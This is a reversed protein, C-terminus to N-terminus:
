HIQQGQNFFFTILAQSGGILMAALGSVLVTRRGVFSQHYNQSHSGLAWAGSGILLGALSAILAWFGLGDTLSQITTGGPLGSPSPSFWSLSGSGSAATTSTSGPAPASVMLVVLRALHLHLHMRLHPHFHSLARARPLVARALPPFSWLHGVEAWAARAVHAAWRPVPTVGTIGAVGRIGTLGPLGSVPAVGVLGLSIGPILVPLSPVSAPPVLLGLLPLVVPM